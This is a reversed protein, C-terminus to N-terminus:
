PTVASAKIIETMLATVSAESLGNAQLQCLYFGGVQIYTTRETSTSLAQSIKTLEATIAILDGSNAEEPVRSLVSLLSNSINAQIAKTENDTALAMQTCASPKNDRPVVLAASENANWRIVGAGTKSGSEGNSWYQGACGSLTLVPVFVLLGKLSM